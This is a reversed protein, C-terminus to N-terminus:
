GIRDYPGAWLATFLERRAHDIKFCKLNFGRLM